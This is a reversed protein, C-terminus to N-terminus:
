KYVRAGGSAYLLDKNQDLLSVPYDYGVGAASTAALATGTHINAYSLFVFADRKILLPYIDTSTELGTLTQLRARTTPDMQVIARQGAPGTAVLNLWGIAAVEEPHTYYLNYYEGANNLHLQPGYGGVAQTLIGTSSAFFALVVVAALAFGARPAARPALALAGAVLFVALVVLAQEFSRLIGYNVSLPPLLVQLGVVMLSAVGLYYLEPPPRIPKRRALLVAVLGVLILIQLVKASTQRVGYNISPLNLGLSSLWRGLGTLPLRPSAALPAPYREATDLDYYGSGARDAQTAELIAARYDALIASPTKRSAALLSYSTDSSKSGVIADWRVSSVAAKLTKVLGQSTHTLPAGWGFSVTAVFVLVAPGLVYREKQHTVPAVRAALGPALRGLLRRVPWMGARLGLGIGLVGIAVYTTSYHSLAMGMAFVCFWLQRTRVSLRDNAAVLLGSVLFLFAIEQRNLMPMDQFFTVFSMFLIAALLAVGEPAMRAALRYVLIPCLAFLVQFLVKYVYPDAVLTWHWIMTPLITISICANYADPFTSTKWRALNKTLQFVMYETQIDHGTTYWGRMSTMLLLGLATCYLVAPVVGPHVRERWAVLLALTVLTVVLMCLTLGGGAGNNLRIAGTVAMVVAAGALGLLAFDRAHLYPITLRYVPPHRRWVWTGLVVCLGEVILMLTEGSLPRPVQKHPLLTNILLGSAMLLGLALVVSVALRESKGPLRVVDAMYLLFTPIGVVVAMGCLPTIWPISIGASLMAKTALLLFGALVFGTGRSISVTREIRRRPQYGSPRPVGSPARPPALAQDPLYAPEVLDAPRTTVARLGLRV